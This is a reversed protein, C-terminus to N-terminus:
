RVGYARIIRQTVRAGHEDTLEVRLSVNRGAAASNDVTAVYKEGAPAVPAEVWTAGDDLSTWVKASVIRGADYDAQGAGSVTLEFGPAADTLNLGDLPLDYSPIVLPLVAVADDDAPRQSRFEFNTVTETSMRWNPAQSSGATQKHTVVQLRYDAPGSSVPWQGSPFISHSLLVGNEYLDANGADGFNTALTYHGAADRYHPFEVGILNAQREGVHGPSYDPDLRLGTPIPQKYWTTSSTEGAAFTTPVSALYERFFGLSSNAMPQWAVDPTYYATRRQPAFVDEGLTGLFVRAGYPRVAALDEGFWGPTRQAYWQEDVAALRADSVDLAAKPVEGDSTFALNYVYPSVAIGVWALKVGGAALRARLADGTERTVTMGPTAVPIGFIPNFSLRGPTNRDFIIAKVNQAAAPGLVASIQSTASVRVLAVKGAAQPLRAVLEANTGSGLDVLPASGTGDLRGSKRTLEVPVADGGVVRLKLAPAYAKWFTDVTFTGTRARRTPAVYYGDVLGDTTLSGSLGFGEWTRGYAVAGLRVEMERGGRTRNPTGDRADLVLTTDEKLEFEPNGAFTVSEVPTNAGADPTAIVSAISYMGTPLQYTLDAGAPFRRTAADADLDLVDVFSPRLAPEGKRDLVKVTLKVTEPAIWFGIPTIVSDGDEVTAVVRGGFEGHGGDKVLASPHVTIQATATGHAPVTLHRTNLKVLAGIAKRDNQGIVDDLRLKLEAPADGTNTYTLERSVAAQNEHPWDFVGLDSTGPGLVTQGLLRPVDVVGAGQDFVHSSADPRVSSILARKLQQAPWDPRRQALIAAAGAVHPTAMSTGSMPVYAIDGRQRAAAAVIDVGPAALDPKVRHAAGFTPGRSSFLATALDRDVAGVTLVGAACGPSSVRERLGNNGAAIVFLADDSLDEAAQAIPDTCDSQATSGLSMNVVDAGQAVAWQMGAIIWSMQGSGGANLVRGILLDAGPAVGRREGGSRAGTGAVTSAVHTGHGNDDQVGTTATTFNMSGVVQGGVDPHGLDIGSDLVAVKVGTGDYGAAWAAPAGIQAVSRDLMARVPADLWLKEIQGAVRSRPDDFAAWFAAAEDSAVEVAAGGISPLAQTETVGPLAARPAAGGAYEAILPITERSADDYGAEVLTTVNFLEEDVRGDRLADVASNPFLYVDGSRDLTSYGTESELRASVKGDRGVAVVARDGTVLTVTTGSGGGASADGLLRADPSRAAGATAALVALMVAAVVVGRLLSSRM